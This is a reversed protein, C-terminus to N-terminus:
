KGALVNVIANAAEAEDAGDAIVTLRTGRNLDLSLVGILSDLLISANGYEIVLNAAFKEAQQALKAAIEPTMRDSVSFEAVTRVM